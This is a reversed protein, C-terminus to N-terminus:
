VRLLYHCYRARRILCAIHLDRISNLRRTPYAVTQASGTDLRVLLALSSGRGTTCLKRRGSIQALYPLYHLLQPRM